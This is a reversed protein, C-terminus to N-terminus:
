RSGPAGAGPNEHEGEGRRDRMGLTMCVPLRNKKGCALCASVLFRGSVAVAFGKKPCTWPDSPACGSPAPDPRRGGVPRGLPVALRRGRPSNETLASSGRWGALRAGLATPLGGPKGALPVLVTRWDVAGYIVGLSGGVGGAASLTLPRGARPVPCRCGAGGPVM